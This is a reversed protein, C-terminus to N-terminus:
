ARKMDRRELDSLLKSVTVSLGPLSAKAIRWVRKHDITAYNHILLNRFAIIQGIGPIQSALDPDLRALAALAEGIIEFKREVASYILSSTGYTETTQGDLFQAISAAAAQVDWLLARADRRM